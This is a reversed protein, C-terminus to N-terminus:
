VKNLNYKSIDKFQELVFPWTKIGRKLLKFDILDQYLKLNLLYELEEKKWYKLIKAM